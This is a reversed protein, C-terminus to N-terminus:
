PAIEQEALAERLLGLAKHLRWSLTGLPLKLAHAAEEYSLGQWYVLVVPQRYLDALRGVAERVAHGDLSPDDGPSGRAPLDTMAEEGAEARRRTRHRLYHHYAIGYLWSRLKGEERLRPLGQWAALFTDQTLDEAAAAGLGLRRFYGYLGPLSQEVVMAFREHEASSRV